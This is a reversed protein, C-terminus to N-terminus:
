SAPTVDVARIMLVFSKVFKTMNDFNLKNPNPNFRPFRKKYDREITNLERKIASANLKGDKVYDHSFGLDKFFQHETVEFLLHFLERDPQPIAYYFMCYGAIYGPIALAVDTHGHEDYWDMKSLEGDIFTVVRDHNVRQTIGFTSTVQYMEKAFDAESRDHIKQLEKRLLPNKVHTPRNDNFYMRHIRELTELMFGEPTTLYELKYILNLKLYAMGGSYKEADLAGSDIFDFVRKIEKKIFNYKVTKEKESLAKIHGNNAPHLMEFEDVLLDDQKDAMTAVEKLAYYVKYPSADITYSDFKMAVDEENDLAFRSYQLGYNREVLRRMFGVNTRDAKVVKTSAEIKRETAKGEIKKSGQLLEFRLIDGDMWYKVNESKEDKLYLFFSKYSEIYKKNDFLKMCKNWADYQANSKYADSYRGFQINPQNKKTTTRGFLLDFLGM